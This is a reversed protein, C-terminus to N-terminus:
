RRIPDVRSAGLSAALQEAQEQGCVLVRSSGGRGAGFVVSSDQESVASIPGAVELLFTENPPMQSQSGVRGRVGQELDAFTEASYVPAAESAPYDRPEAFVQALRVPDKSVLALVVKAFSAVLAVDEPEIRRPSLSLGCLSGLIPAEGELGAEHRILPVGLYSRAGIARVLDSARFFPEAAADEVIFPERASLTHTCFSLERPVIDLHALHKPTGHHVRHITDGGDVASVYVMELSLFQALQELVRRLAADTAKEQEATPGFAGRLGLERALRSREVEKPDLMHLRGVAENPPRLPEPARLTPAISRTLPPAPKAPAGVAALIKSKLNPAVQAPALEAPAEGENAAQALEVVIDSVNCLARASPSHGNAAKVVIESDAGPLESADLFHDLASERLGSQPDVGGETQADHHRSQAMIGRAEFRLNDSRFATRTFKAAPRVGM